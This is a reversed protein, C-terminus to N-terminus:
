HSFYDNGDIFHTWGLAAEVVQRDVSDIDVDFLFADVSFQNIEVLETAFEDRIPLIQLRRKVKMM